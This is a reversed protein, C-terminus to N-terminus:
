VNLTKLSRDHLWRAQRPTGTTKWFWIDKMTGNFNLALDRWAGIVIPNTIATPVVKTSTAVLKRDIYVTIRVNSADINNWTVVLDREIGDNYEEATLLTQTNSYAVLNGSGDFFVGIGGGAAGRWDFMYDDTGTLTFRCHWIFNDTPSLSLSEATVLYDTGDFEYGHSQLIVPFKGSTYGDGMLLDGESGLNRTKTIVENVTVDDFEVYSSTTIINYLRFLSSQSTYEFSFEQWDTSTTGTWIIAVTSDFVKPVGTGDSRAWGTVKYKKGVTTSIQSAGPNSVGNYAIRLVQSGSGGTRTGTEKTLTASNVVLWDSVGSAEMDGDAIIETTQVEAFRSRGDLYVLARSAELAAYTSGNFEDDVTQQDWTDNYVSVTDVTIPLGVGGAGGRDGIVLGHTGTVASTGTAENVAFTEKVKNLYIVPHTFLNDSNYTFVIEYEVGAELNTSGNGRFVGGATMQQFKFRVDAGITRTGFHWGNTAGDGTAMVATNTVVTDVTFKIKVTGGGEFITEDFDAYSIGRGTCIAKGPKFIVPTTTNNVGRNDAVSQASTFDESFDQNDGMSRPYSM